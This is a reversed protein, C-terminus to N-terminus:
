HKKLEKQDKIKKAFRRILEPINKDRELNKLDSERLLKLLNLATPSPTKPNRVLAHIVSYKKIFARNMGMHRLLDSDINRMQAFGEIESESLKPNRLVLGAIQRSPDHILLAREDKSGLLAVRIKESHKMALIKQYVSIIEAPLQELDDKSFLMDMAAKVQEESPSEQPQSDIEQIWKQADADLNPIQALLDDLSALPIEEVPQQKKYIFEEKYEEIRRKQDNTLTPNRELSVLIQPDRLLRVQNNLVVDITKGSDTAAIMEFISDPVSHNLLIKEKIDDSGPKNKLVYDVVEAEPEKRDVLRLWTEDSVNKLATAAMDRIPAEADQLLLIQLPVLEEESLPLMGQAAFERLNQPAQGAKIQDVLSSALNM